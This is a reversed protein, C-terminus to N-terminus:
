MVCGKILDSYYEFKPWLKQLPKGSQIDRLVQDATANKPPTYPKRSRRTLYVLEGGSEEAVFRGGHHTIYIDAAVQIEESQMFQQYDMM